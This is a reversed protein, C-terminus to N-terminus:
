LSTLLIQFTKAWGSLNILTGDTLSGYSQIKPKGIESDGRRTSILIVGWVSRYLTGENGRLVILTEIDRVSMSKLDETTEIKVGDVYVIPENHTVITKQATQIISGSKWSFIKDDM